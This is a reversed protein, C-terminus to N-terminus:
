RAVFNPAGLELVRSFVSVDDDGDSILGQCTAVITEKNSYLIQVATIIIRQHREAVTYSQYM